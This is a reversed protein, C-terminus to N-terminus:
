PVPPWPVTITLPPLNLTSSGWVPAPSNSTPRELRPVIITCFPPVTVLTAPVIPWSAPLLPVTLTTPELEVQVMVPPALRPPRETPLPPVPDSDIRAPPVTLAVPESMLIPAGGLLLLVPVPVTVTSSPLNMALPELMLMPTAPVPVLLM